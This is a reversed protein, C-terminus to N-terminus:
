VQFDVGLYWAVPYCQQGKMGNVSQTVLNNIYRFTSGYM